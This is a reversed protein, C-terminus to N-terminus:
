VYSISKSEGEEIIIKMMRLYDIYEIPSHDLDRLKTNVIQIIPMNM